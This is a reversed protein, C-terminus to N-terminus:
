QMGKIVSSDRDLLHQWRATFRKKNENFKEWFAPDRGRTAAGDHFVSGYGCYMVEWGREKLSLCYDIDEFGGFPLYYSFDFGDKIAERRFLCTSAGVADVKYAFSYLHGMEGMGINRVEKDFLMAGANEIIGTPWRLTKFGVAGVTPEKKMIQLASGIWGKEVMCSNNLVVIYPCDTHSLGYNYIEDINKFPRNPSLYQLNDKQLRYIYSPTLDESDDLVNLRFPFDATNKYLADIAKITLELHNHTVLFVDFDYV